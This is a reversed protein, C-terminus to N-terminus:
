ASGRSSDAPTQKGKLHNQKVIFIGGLTVLAVGCIIWELKSYVIGLAIGLVGGAIYVPILKHPWM